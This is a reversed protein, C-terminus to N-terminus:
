RNYWIVHTADLPIHNRGESPYLHLQTDKLNDKVPYGFGDYDIFCGSKINGLYEEVTMLDGECGTDHENPDPTWTEIAKLYVGRLIM